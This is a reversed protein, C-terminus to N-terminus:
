ISYERNRIAAMIYLIVLLLATIALTIASKPKFSVSIGIVSM